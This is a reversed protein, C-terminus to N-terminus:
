PKHEDALFQQFSKSRYIGGHVFRDFEDFDKVTQVGAVKLITRGDPDIWAFVPTAFAKFRVGLEMETIREGSPLTLRRGSESDVYVLVYHAVFRARLAPDSFAERNTRECWGCGLRGFYVFLRKQQQRAQRLGDDYSLFDYGAPPDAYAAPAVCLLAAALLPFVRM